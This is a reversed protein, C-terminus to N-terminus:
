EMKMWRRVERGSVGEVQVFYGGSSLASTNMEIQNEGVGVATRQTSVTRGMMDIISVQIIEETPSVLSLKLQDRGPNPYVDFQFGDAPLMVRVVSSLQEMGEETLQRLRYYVEAIGLTVAETDYFTYVEEVPHWGISEFSAGNSSREILYGAVESELTAEWELHVKNGELVASLAIDDLPLIMGCDDFSVVDPADFTESVSTVGGGVEIGTTNLQYYSPIFGSLGYDFSFYYRYADTPDSISGGALDCSIYEVAYYMWGPGTYSNDKSMTSSQWGMTPSYFHVRPYTFDIEHESIVNFVVRESEGAGFVQTITDGDNAETAWVPPISIADDLELEVGREANNNGTTGPDQGYGVGAPENWFSIGCPVMTSYGDADARFTFDDVWAFPSGSFGGEFLVRFKFGAHFWSADVNPSSSFYYNGPSTTSKYATFCYYNLPLASSIYDDVGTWSASLDDRLSSVTQWAAGDWIQLKLRDSFSWTDGGGTGPSSSKAHFSIKFGEMGSMDLVPSEIYENRDLKTYYVNSMSASFAETKNSSGNWGAAPVLELTSGGGLVWPGCSACDEDGDNGAYNLVLDNDNFNDAWKYNSLTGGADSCVQVDDFYFTYSTTRRRIRLHITGGTYASLNESVTQCTGDPNTYGVGLNTWPGGSGATSIEVYACHFDHASADMSYNMNFEAYTAGSLDIATTVVEAPSSFTSFYARSDGGTCVGFTSTFTSSVTTWESADLSGDSFDDQFNTTTCSPGGGPSCGGTNDVVIDDLYWSTFSSGAAFRIYITQGAWADLSYNVPDCTTTQPLVALDTWTMGASFCFAGGTGIQVVPFNFSNNYSYVFSLCYGTGPIFMSNTTVDQNSWIYMGYEGSGACPGSSSNSSKDLCSSWNPAALATSSFTTGFNESFLQARLPFAAAFFLLSIILVRFTM